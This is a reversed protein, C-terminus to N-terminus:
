AGGLDNWQPNAWEILALKGTRSLRKDASARAIAAGVDHRQEASFLREVNYRATFSGTAGLKQRRARRELDNTAGSCLTHCLSNMIHADYSRLSM